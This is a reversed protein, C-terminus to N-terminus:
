CKPCTPLESSAESKGPVVKVTWVPGHQHDPTVNMVVNGAPDTIRVDTISSHQANSRAFLVASEPTPFAYRYDGEPYTTKVFHVTFYDDM